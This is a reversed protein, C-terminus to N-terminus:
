FPDEPFSKRTATQPLYTMFLVVPSEPGVWAQEVQEVTEWEAQWECEQSCFQPWEAAMVGPYRQPEHQRPTWAPHYSPIQSQQTGLAKQSKLQTPSFLYQPKFKASLAIFPWSGLFPSFFLPSLSLPQQVWNRWFSSPYNWYRRFAQVPCFQPRDRCQPAPLHLPPLLSGWRTGDKLELRHSLPRFPLVKDYRIVSVWGHSSFEQGVIPITKKQVSSYIM